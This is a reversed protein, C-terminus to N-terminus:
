VKRFFLVCPYWSYQLYPFLLFVWNLKGIRMLYEQQIREIRDTIKQYIQYNKKWHFPVKSTLYQQKRALTLLTRKTLLLKLHPQSILHGGGIKKGTWYPIKCWISLSHQFSYIIGDQSTILLWLRRFHAFQYNAEYESLDPLHRWLMMIRCHLRIIRNLFIQFFVM